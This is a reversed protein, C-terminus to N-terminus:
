VEVSNTSEGIPQVVPLSRKPPNAASVNAVGSLESSFLKLLDDSTIIGVLEGSSNVIPLRRLGHLSMTQAAAELRTSEEITVPSKTALEDIKATAADFRDGLVGLAIDRDTVIGVPRNDRTVVLSGVSFDRMMQAAAHLTAKGNVSYPVKRCYAAISM